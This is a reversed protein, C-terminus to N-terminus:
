QSLNAVAKSNSDSKPSLPWNNPPFSPPEEIEHPSIHLPSLAPPTYNSKRSMTSITSLPRSVSISPIPPPYTGPLTKTDVDADVTNTLDVVGELSLPEKAGITILRARENPGGRSQPRSASEIPSGSAQGERRNSSPFASYSVSGSRSKMGGNTTPATNSQSPPMNQQNYKSTVITASSSRKGVPSTVRPPPPTFPLPNAATTIRGRAPTSSGTTSGLSKRRPNRPPPEDYISAATSSLPSLARNTRDHTGNSLISHDDDRGRSTGFSHVSTSDVRPPYVMGTRPATTSRISTAKDHPQHLTTDDSSSNTGLIHGLPSDARSQSGGAVPKKPPSYVSKLYSFEPSNLDLRHQDREGFDKINRDAVDEGYKSAKARHRSPERPKTINSHAELVDVHSAISAKAQHQPPERGRINSQAEFLDLHSATSPKVRHQIPPSRINSQAELIDAHSVGSAQVRHQSNDRPRSIKSHAELIDVHSRHSANSSNRNHQRQAFPPVFDRAIPEPPAPTPGKKPQYTQIERIPKRPVPPPVDINSRISNRRSGSFFSPPSKMSLGSRTRGPANNTASTYGGGAKDNHPATQPRDAADDRRRPINITSFISQRKNMSSQRQAEKKARSQQIEELVNPGNGAVPYSGKVPPELAVASDYSQGALLKNNNGSKGFFLSKFRSGM